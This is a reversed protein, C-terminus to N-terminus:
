RDPRHGEDPQLADHIRQSLKLCYNVFTGPVPGAPRPMSQMKETPFKDLHVSESAVVPASLACAIVTAVLGFRRRILASTNM